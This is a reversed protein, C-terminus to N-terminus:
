NIVYVLFFALFFVKEIVNSSFKQQSFEVISGLLFDLIDSSSTPFFFFSSGFGVISNNHISSRIMQEYKIVNPHKHFSIWDFSILHSIVYNGFQNNIRFNFLFLSTFM